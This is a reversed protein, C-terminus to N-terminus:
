HIAGGHLDGISSLIASQADHPEVAGRLIALVICALGLRFLRDSDDSVSGVAQSLDESTTELDSQQTDM